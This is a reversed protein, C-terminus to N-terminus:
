LSYIAMNKKIYTRMETAQLRLVSLDYRHIELGPLDKM